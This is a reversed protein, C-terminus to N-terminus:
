RTLQDLPIGEHVILDPIDDRVAYAIRGDARVLAGDVTETISHGGKSVLKRKGIAANLREVLARDARTLKSKDDPCVLIALLSDDIPM